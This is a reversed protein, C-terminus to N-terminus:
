QGVLDLTRANMFHYDGDYGSHKLVEIWDDEHLVTAGLLTWYRFLKAEQETRYAGLTVFSRKRSVRQIERLCAIADGLTLAYVVGIALVLDFSRDAFPLRTPSAKCIGSRVAPMAKEMPYDALETGMVTMRPHLERLDHLLFGKECNLQLVASDDDLAYERCMGEAIAHWRGDYHFGGYGANRDGDYYREDRYTATIRHHITRISPGVVRPKTPRPYGALANFQRM